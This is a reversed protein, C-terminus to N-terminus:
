ERRVMERHELLEVTVGADIQQLAGRVPVAVLSGAAAGLDVAEALGEDGAAFDVNGFFEGAVDVAVDLEEVLPLDFGLVDLEDDGAAAVAVHAREVQDGGEGIAAAPQQVQLGGSGPDEAL